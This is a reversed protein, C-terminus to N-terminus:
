AGCAFPTFFPPPRYLSFFVLCFVLSIGIIRNLPIYVLFAHVVVRGGRRGLHRAVLIPARVRRGIEGVLGLGFDMRGGGLRDTKGEGWGVGGERGLAGAAAGIAFVRRSLIFAFPFTPVVGRCGGGEGNEDL